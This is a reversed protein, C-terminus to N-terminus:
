NKFVVLTPSWRSASNPDASLISCGTKETLYGSVQTNSLRTFVAQIEGEDLKLSSHDKVNKAKELM